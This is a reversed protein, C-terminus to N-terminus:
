VLSKHAPRNQNLVSSEISAHLLYKNTPDLPDDIRFFKSGEAGFNGLVLVDNGFVASDIAGHNVIAGV